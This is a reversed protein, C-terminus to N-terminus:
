TTVSLTLLLFAFLNNLAHAIIPVWLDGSRHYGVALLAAGASIPLFAPLNLHVLGFVVSSYVVGKVFGKRMAIARFMFGRFFIEETVPALVIGAIWIAVTGAVGGQGIPFQSAQTQQVGMLRLLLELASSVAIFALGWALGLGLSRLRPLRAFGMDRWTTVQRRVLLFYVVGVFVADELAIIVFLAFPNDLIAAPDGTQLVLAFMIPLSLVTSLLVVLLLLSIVWPWSGYRALTPRQWAGQGSPPWPSAPLGEPQGARWAAQQDAAHQGEPRPATLRTAAPCGPTCCGGQAEWCELHHLARCTGCMVTTDPDDVAQGCCPCFAPELPADVVPRPPPPPPSQNHAPDYSM